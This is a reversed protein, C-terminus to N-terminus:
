SIKNTIFIRFFIYNFMFFFYFFGFYLWNTFHYKPQTYHTDGLLPIAELIDKEIKEYVEAVNGRTYTPNLTTEPETPYPVGLSTAATAPDYPMCFENVLLFHYYARSM